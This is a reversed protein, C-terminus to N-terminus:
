RGEREGVSSSNDDDDNDIDGKGDVDEDEKGVVEIGRGRSLEWGESRRM